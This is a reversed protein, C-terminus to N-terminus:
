TITKVLFGRPSGSTKLFHECVFVNAHVEAVNDLRQPGDSDTAVQNKNYGEPGFDALSMGLFSLRVALQLSPTDQRRLVSAMRLRREHVDAETYDSPLPDEEYVRDRVAAYALYQHDCEVASLQLKLKDVKTLESM